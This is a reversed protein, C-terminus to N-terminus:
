DIEKINEGRIHKRRKFEIIFDVTKNVELFNNLAKETIRITGRGKGVKIAELYGFDVWNYVTRLSVKFMEAVEAVTYLKM